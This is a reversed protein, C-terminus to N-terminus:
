CNKCTPQTGFIVEGRELLGVARPLCAREKCTLSSLLEAPSSGASLSVAVRPLTHNSGVLQRGKLAKCLCWTKAENGSISIQKTQLPASADTPKLLERPTESTCGSYLFEEMGHYLKTIPLPFTPWMHGSHVGAGPGGLEATM